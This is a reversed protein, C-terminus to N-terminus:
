GCNCRTQTLRSQLEAGRAMLEIDYWGRWITKWGPRGDAKRGLWGGQRAIQRWFLQPTLRDPPVSALAAVVTIWLSPVAAQLAAPDHARRRAKSQGANAQSVAVDKAVTWSGTKGTGGTEAVRWGDPTKGVEDRDFGWLTPPVRATDRKLVKGTMADIEIATVVDAAL